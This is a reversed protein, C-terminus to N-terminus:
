GSEGLEKKYGALKEKERAVIEAEAKQAFDSSLLKELRAIEKELIEKREVRKQKLLAMEAIQVAYIGVPLSEALNEEFSIKVGALKEIIEQQSKIIEDAKALKVEYNIETEKGVLHKIQRLRQILDKITEFNGGGTEEGKALPLTPLPEPWEQIMLAGRVKEFGLEEWLAETVFPMLPHWVVLLKELIVGLMEGKNKEIKIIELYWDALSDWTFARLADTAGSVDYNKLKTQAIEFYNKMESLIWHDASTKPEVGDVGSLPTKDSGSVGSLPTLGAGQAFRGINWLKNVFNRFGQIKKESMKSDQGPGVGAVLSLRVADAGYKEAVELPDIGNGLSKSMKRGQEDRVIGHLYIKHFPIQGTAYTTLMIMRAVWFFLIDYGTELVSTPHYNKFDESPNKENWGLTSFTWLGSSFWTDLVDEDQKWKDETAEAFSSDAPAEVGVYVEEGKYWVPLRHGFWLQRSVCWDHLNNMWHEYVKKFREPMIEITQGKFDKQVSALTAEKLSQGGLRACPKNVAVFWQKSLLPEVTTGCRYCVQLQIPGDEIKIMLGQDIWEKVLKERCELTTLGAYPGAEATMKGDPGIVQIKELNHREAWAWDVASHAPTVGVVGTGFTPDVEHEGIVKIKQTGRGFDVEFETGILKQYREDDSNVAIATDGLKTEPRSTAVEVPGYKFYYMKGSAPRHEVEDDSLTSACRPCWQVLRLGRYLLGDEYMQVFIQQVTKSVDADLTYKLRSLDFSAGLRECQRLIIEKNKAVTEEVRALFKERGLDHRNKGEASLEKEVVNQTAIAAHDLGPLWLTKKGSMRQFRIFTDQLALMLSHGLHLQGTVNPPPLIISYTESREGPLNDPNALGSELWKKIIKEEYRSSEYNKEM